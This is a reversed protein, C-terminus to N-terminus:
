EGLRTRIKRASKRAWQRIFAPQSLNFWGGVKSLFKADEATGVDGMLDIAADLHHPAQYDALQRLRERFLSADRRRLSDAAALRVYSDPDLLSEMLVEIVDVGTYAQLARTARMRVTWHGAAASALLLGRARPEDPWGELAGVASARVREEPDQALLLLRELAADGLFAGLADSALERLVADPSASLELLRPELDALEARRQAFEAPRQNTVTDPSLWRVLRRLGNAVLDPDTLALDRHILASSM